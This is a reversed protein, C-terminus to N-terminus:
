QAIASYYADKYRNNGGYEGYLKNSFLYELWLEFIQKKKEVTPRIYDSESLIKMFEEGMGYNDFFDFWESSERKSFDNEFVSEYFWFMYQTNQSIKDFPNEKEGKFYKYMSYDTM